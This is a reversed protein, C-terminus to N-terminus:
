SLSHDITYFYPQDGQQVTEHNQIALRVKKVMLRGKSRNVTNAWTEKTGLIIKSSVFM